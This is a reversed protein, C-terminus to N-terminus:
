LVSESKRHRDRSSPSPTPYPPALKTTCSECDGRAYTTILPRTPSNMYGRPKACLGNARVHESAMAPRRAIRARMRHAASDGCDRTVRLTESTNKRCLNTESFYCPMASRSLIYLTANWRRCPTLGEASPTSDISTAFVASLSRGLRFIGPRRDRDVSSVSLSARTLAFPFGPRPLQAGERGCSGARPDPASVEFRDPLEAPEGRARRPHDLDEVQELSERLGVDGHGEESLGAGSLVDEGVHQM